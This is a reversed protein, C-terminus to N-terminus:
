GRVQGSGHLVWQFTTLDEAGMPGRAHLKDTSIGIEAGLGYEGGDAFRTSCNVMVSASDVLSTFRDAASLSSTIIAETHQSGFRRIHDCADELSDVVRVALILDLYETKWDEETADQTAPRPNSSALIPKARPCARLEVGAKALAAGIRPLVRPAVAQHVLLTEAANCVGPRQAKANVVIKEAADELADLHEDIYVHCNGADHKVVPITAAACVANILGPGGRPIALDIVGRMKVLLEVARRDPTDVFRVADALGLPALAEHIAAVVERNIRAAEKGGKLVVANGSKLCLAAADSTVNPRAEYIVLVVGIPVRRKELRIGNPLTRGEVVRGIPDPQAAIQEVGVAMSEVRQPTLRLRDLMALSLEAASERESAESAAVIADSRARISAAIRRLADTREAPTLLALRPRASSAARAARECISELSEAATM